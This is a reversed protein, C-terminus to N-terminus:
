YIVHRNAFRNIALIVFILLSLIGIVLMNRGNKRTSNDYAYVREGNPLLKKTTMYLWGIFIGLFGGMLSTVYGIYIWIEDAKQPARLEEMRANRLKALTEDSISHGREKLMKQALMYDEESWEDPKEIIEVLEADTFASLYHDNDATASQKAIEMLANEANTFDSTKVLVQVEYPNRVGGFSSNLNQAPNAAKCDIGKSKLMELVPSAEEISNFTRFATYEEEM